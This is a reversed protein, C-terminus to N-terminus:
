GRKDKANLFEDMEAEPNGECMERMKVIVDAGMRRERAGERGGETDDDNEVIVQDDGGMNSENGMREHRAGERGGMDYMTALQEDTSLADFEGCTMAAAPMSMAATLGFVSVTKLMLNKM